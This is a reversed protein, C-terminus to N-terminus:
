KFREKMKIVRGFPPKEDSGNPTLLWLVPYSPKKPFETYLDTFCIMVKPSLNRKKVEQIVPRHSTGGGGSFVLRKPLKELERVEGIECDCDIM